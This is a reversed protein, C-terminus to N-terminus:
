KLRQSGAMEFLKLRSNIPIEWYHQKAEPQGSLDLNINAHAPQNRQTKEDQTLNLIAKVDPM